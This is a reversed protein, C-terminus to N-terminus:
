HLLCPGRASHAHVGGKPMEQIQDQIRDQIQATKRAYRLRSRRQRVLGCISPCIAVGGDAGKERAAIWPMTIAVNEDPAARPLGGPGLMVLGTSDYRNQPPFSMVLLNVRRPTLVPMPAARSDGARAVRRAKACLPLGILIPKLM